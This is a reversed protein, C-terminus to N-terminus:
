GRSSRVPYRVPKGRRRAVTAIAGAGLRHPPLQERGARWGLDAKRKYNPKLGIPPVREPAYNENPVTHAALYAVAELPCVLLM